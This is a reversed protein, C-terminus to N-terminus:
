KLNYKKCINSVTVRHIGTEKSINVYSIKNGEENLKKICSKIKSINKNKLVDNYSSYGSVKKNHNNILEKQKDNMVKRVTRPIVNLREAIDIKKIFKDVSLLDSIVEDKADKTKLGRIRNSESVGIRKSNLISKEISDLWEFMEIMEEDIDFHIKFWEGKVRYNRLAGHLMREKEYGGEVCFMLELDVWNGTQLSVLRHQISEEDKSYGIKVFNTGKGRIFYVM